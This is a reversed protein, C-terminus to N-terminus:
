ESCFRIPEDNVISGLIGRLCEMSTEGNGDFEVNTLDCDVIIGEGIILETLAVSDESDGFAARLFLTEEFSRRKETSDSLRRDDILDVSCRMFTAVCESSANFGVAVVVKDIM